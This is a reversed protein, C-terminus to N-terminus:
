RSGRRERWCKRCYVPRGETPQFPVEDPAGCKSCTIKFRPRRDPGPDLILSM